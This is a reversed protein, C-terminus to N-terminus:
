ARENVGQGLVKAIRCLRRTCSRMLTLQQSMTVTQMADRSAPTVGRAALPLVAWATARSDATM